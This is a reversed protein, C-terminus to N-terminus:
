HVNHGTTDTVNSMEQAECLTQFVRESLESMLYELRQSVCVHEYVSGTCLKFASVTFLVLVCCNHQGKESYFM